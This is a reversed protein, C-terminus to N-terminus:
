ILNKHSGSYAADDAAIMADRFELFDPSGSVRYLADFVLFDTESASIGSANRIDWLISSFFEGGTHAGPSESQYESFSSIVPNDMDRESSPAAYDLIESRGTHSGAFYDPTGESIAGEENSSSTIDSEIENIVAHGYEHHVIKDERAFPNYGTGTGDGFYIDKTSPSFCANNAGGPCITNAHAHAEIKTFGLSGDDVDEIFEHRFDDVHYYLSVEDFHTSGTTYQFDHSASYAESSVDNTVEVYTGDLRGTNNLRYLDKVTVSSNDPHKPYVKGTGTVDSLRNQKEIVEGSSADIYYLWDTFPNEAFVITKYALKFSNDAVPYVVLVSTTSIGEPDTLKLDSIATNLAQDESISPKTSININSFYHGNAMDVQGSERIHVKYEGGEVPVGQYFQDLTVHYVGRHTQTKSHQLDALGEKMSFLERYEGLFQTAISEPNGSYAKTLGNSIVRPVGTQGKWRINWANGENAKFQEWQAKKAESPREQAQASLGM